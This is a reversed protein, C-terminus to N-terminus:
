YRVTIANVLVNVLLSSPDIIMWTSILEITFSLRIVEEKNADMMKRHIDLLRSTFDDVQRTRFTCTDSYWDLLEVLKKVLNGIIQNM